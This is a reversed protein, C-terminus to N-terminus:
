GRGKSGERGGVADELLMSLSSFKCTFKVHDADEEDDGVGGDYFGM